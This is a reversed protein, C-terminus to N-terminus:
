WVPVNLIQCFKLSEKTYIPCELIKALKSIPQMFEKRSQYFQKIKQRLVFHCISQNECVNIYKKM